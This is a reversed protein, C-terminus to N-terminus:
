RGVRNKKSSNCSFFCNRKKPRIHIQITQIQQRRRFGGVKDGETIQKTAFIIIICFAM